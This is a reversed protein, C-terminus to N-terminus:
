WKEDKANHEFKSERSAQKNQDRTIDHAWDGLEHKQDFQGSKNQISKM